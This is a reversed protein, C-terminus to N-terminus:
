KDFTLKPNKPHKFFLCSSTEALFNLSNKFIIKNPTYNIISFTGYTKWKVRTAHEVEDSIKPKDYHPLDM